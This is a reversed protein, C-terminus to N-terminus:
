SKKNYKKDHIKEVEKVFEEETMLDVVRAWVKKGGRIKLTIKYDTNEKKGTHANFKFTHVQGVRLAKFGEPTFAESIDVWKGLNM